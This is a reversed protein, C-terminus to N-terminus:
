HEPPATVARRAADVGPPTIPTLWITASGNSSPFRRAYSGLREPDRLHRLRNKDVSLAVSAVVDADEMWAGEVKRLGAVANELTNFIEAWSLTDM